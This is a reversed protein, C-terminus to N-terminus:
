VYGFNSKQQNILQIPCDHKLTEYLKVTAIFRKPIGKTLVM